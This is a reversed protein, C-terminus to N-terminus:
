ARHKKGAMMVAALALSAALLSIILLKLLNNEDPKSPVPKGLEGIAQQLERYDPARNYLITGNRGLVIVEKNMLSIVSDNMQQEQLQLQAPIVISDSMTAANTRLLRNKESINLPIFIVDKLLDAYQMKYRDIAKNTLNTMGPRSNIQIILIKDRIGAFDIKKGNLDTITEIPFIKGPAWISEQDYILQTKRFRPHDAYKRKYREYLSKSREWKENYLANEIEYALFETLVPEPILVEGLACCKERSQTLTSNDSYTGAKQLLAQMASHLFSLYPINKAALTNIVPIFHNKGAFTNKSYSHAYTYFSQTKIELYLDPSILQKNEDIIQMGIDIGKRVVELFPLHEQRLREPLEESLTHLIENEASGIGSFLYQRKESLSKLGVKLRDGPSLRVAGTNNVTTGNRLIVKPHVLQAEQLNIAFLYIGNNNSTNVLTKVSNTLLDHYELQIEQIKQLTDSVTLWLLTNQNPKGAESKQQAPLEKGEGQAGSFPILKQYRWVPRGKKNDVEPKKTSPAGAQVSFGDGPLPPTEFYLRDEVIMGSEKDLLIRRRYNMLNRGSSEAPPTPVDIEMIQGDDRIIKYGARVDMQYRWWSSNKRIDFFLAGIERIVSQKDWQWDNLALGEPTKYDGFDFNKFSITNGERHLKFRVPVQHMNLYVEPSRYSTVYGTEYVESEKWEDSKRSQIVHMYYKLFLEIEYTQGKEDYGTVRFEFRKKDFCNRPAGATSDEYYVTEIIYKEGPALNLVPIDRAGTLNPFFLLLICILRFM